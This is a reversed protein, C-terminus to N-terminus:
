YHHQNRIEQQFQSTMDLVIEYEKTISEIEETKTEYRKKLEESYEFVVNDISIGSNQINRLISLNTDLILITMEHTVLNREKEKQALKQKLDKEKAIFMTQEDIKNIMKDQKKQVILTIVGFVGTILAVVITPDLM